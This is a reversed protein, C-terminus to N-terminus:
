TSFSSEISKLHNKPEKVDKGLHKTGKPAYSNCAPCRPLTQSKSNWTHKCSLCKHEYKPKGEKNEKARAIDDMIEANLADTFARKKLEYAELLEKSAKPIGWRKVPASSGGPTKVRLYKWYTKDYRENYQLLQPKLITRQTKVDIRQTQFVAHMLSRQSKAMFNMIPANMILIFRRHRFTEFLYKMAKNIISQWKTSDMEIGAEEFVIVSGAKLKDSHILAMLEDARFVVRDINFKPDIAEGMGISAWSKGSGTPGSIFGLFNKNNKIRQRIYKVWSTTKTGGKILRNKLAKM